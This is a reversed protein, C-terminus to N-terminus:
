EAVFRKDYEAQRALIQAAREDQTIAKVDAPLSAAVAALKVIRVDIAPVQASSSLGQWRMNVRMETQGMSDLWNHVGPDKPSIVYTIRGSDDPALQANNLSTLHDRYELSRGWLDYLVFSHYESPVADATVIVAEDDELRFLGGTSMQTLLGGVPGMMIPVRITQEQGLGMWYHVPAIGLQMVRANGDSGVRWIASDHLTAVLMDGHRTWGLGLPGPLDSLVIEVTGGVPARCVQGAGIDSFWFADQHWRPSEMFIGESHLVSAPGFHSGNSMIPAM